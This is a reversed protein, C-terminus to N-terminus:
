IETRFPLYYLALLPHSLHKPAETEEYIIVVLGGFVLLSHMRHFVKHKSLVYPTKLKM